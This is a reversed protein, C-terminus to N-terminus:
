SVAELYGRFNTGFTDHNHVYAYGNIGSGTWGTSQFRSGCVNMYTTGAGNDIGVCTAGGTSTNTARGNVRTYGGHYQSHCSAGSPLFLDLCFNGAAASAPRASGLAFATTLMAVVVMGLLLRSRLQHLHNTSIM